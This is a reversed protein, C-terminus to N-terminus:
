WYSSDLLEIFSNDLSEKNETERRGARKHTNLDGCAVPVMLLRM